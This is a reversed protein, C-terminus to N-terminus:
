TTLRIHDYVSALQEHKFDGNEAWNYNDSVNEDSVDQVM